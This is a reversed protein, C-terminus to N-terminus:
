DNVQRRGLCGDSARQTSHWQDTQYLMYHNTQPCHTTFTPRQLSHETTSNFLSHETTSNFIRSTTNGNQLNNFTIVSTMQLSTHLYQNPTPAYSRYDIAVGENRKLCTPKRSDLHFNLVLRYRINSSSITVLKPFILVIPHRKLLKTLTSLVNSRRPYIDRYYTFLGLINKPPQVNLNAKAKQYPKM